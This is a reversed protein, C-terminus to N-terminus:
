QNIDKDGYRLRIIALWAEDETAGTASLPFHEKYVRWVDGEAVVRFGRNTLDEVLALYGIAAEMTEAAQEEVTPRTTKKKM